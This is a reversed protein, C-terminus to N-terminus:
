DFGMLIIKSTHNNLLASENYYPGTTIVTNGLATITTLTISSYNVDIKTNEGMIYSIRDVADQISKNIDKM